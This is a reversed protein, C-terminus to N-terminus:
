GSHLMVAESGPVQSEARSGEDGCRSSLATSRKRRRAVPCGVLAPGQRTGDRPLQRGERRHVRGGRTSGTASISSTCATTSARSWVGRRWTPTDTSVGVDAIKEPVVNKLKLKSILDVHARQRRANSPRRELRAPSHRARRRLGRSRWGARPGCGRRGLSGVRCREAPGVRSPLHRRGLTRRM